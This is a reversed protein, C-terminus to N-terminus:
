LLSELGYLVTQMGDVLELAWLVGEEFSYRNNSQHTLEIKQTEDSMIVTHTALVGPLRFGHIDVEEVRAHGLTAEALYHATGSPNDYKSLHHYEYIAFNKFYKRGMQLYKHLLVIGIAFNPAIIGGTKHEEAIKQLAQIEDQNFGTTGVIIPIGKKLLFTCAVKSCTVRTFDVFLDFDVEDYMTKADSYIPIVGSLDETSAMGAVVEYDPNVEFGQLLFKGMKGTIGSLAIRKKM